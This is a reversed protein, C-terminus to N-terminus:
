TTGNKGKRPSYGSKRFAKTLKVSARLHYPDPNCSQYKQGHYLKHKKCYNDKTIEPPLEDPFVPAIPMDERLEKQLEKGKKTLKLDGILGDKVQRVNTVHGIATSERHECFASRTHWAKPDEACKQCPHTLIALLQIVNYGLKDNALQYNNAFHQTREQEAVIWEAFYRFQDGELRFLADYARELHKLIPNATLGMDYANACRKLFEKKTM